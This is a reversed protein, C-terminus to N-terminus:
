FPTGVGKYLTKLGHGFKKEDFIGIAGILLGVDFFHTFCFSGMALIVFVLTVSLGPPWWSLFVIVLLQIWVTFFIGTEFGDLSPKCHVEERSFHKLGYNQFGRFLPGLGKKSPKWVMALNTKMWFNWYSWNLAGFWFLTYFM